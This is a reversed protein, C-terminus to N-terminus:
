GPGGDPLLRLDDVLGMVRHHGRIEVTGDGTPVTAGFAEEADGGSIGHTPVDGEDIGLMLMFKQLVLNHYRQLLLTHMLGFYPHQTCITRLKGGM